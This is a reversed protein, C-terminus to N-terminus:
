KNRAIVLQLQSSGSVVYKDAIQELRMATFKQTLSPDAQELQNLKSAPLNGLGYHRVGLGAERSDLALYFRDSRFTLVRKIMNFLDQASEPKYLHPNSQRDAQMATQLGGVTLSYTGDPLDSPVTFEVTHILEPGRMRTLIMDVKATEGPKYESRDLRAQKINAITSQPLIEVNVNIKKFKVREFENNMMMEVPEAVDSLVMGLDMNSSVNNFDVTGYKGFDISGSYKVTHLEPLEKNCVVSSQVCVMSLLPTLQQHMAMNYHYTKINGDFNVKIDMTSLKPIPGISGAVATNQDSYLTGIPEFPSGLKFASDMSPIIAHIRGAAIPLEMPGQAFFCHGFGWLKDNHVDTVTGIAAMSVDGSVIPVALVGALEINTAAKKDEATGAAGGSGTKVLTMNLPSLVSSLKDFTNGSIGSVGMPTALPVLGMNAKASNRPSQTKSAPADKAIGAMFFRNFSSLPAPDSNKGAALTKLGQTFLGRDSRVLIEKDSMEPPVALMEEIPQVGCIAPGPRSFSWGYAVAGAIKYKGDDPDKLYVPSGSMGQIVGTRELDQGSLYVLISDRKPEFNKIVDRVEVEFREIKTGYFISLGYGKMGPQIKDVPIHKDPDFWVSHEAGIAAQSLFVFLLLGVAYTITKAKM